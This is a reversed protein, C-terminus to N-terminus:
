KTMEEYTEALLRIGETLQEDTPTSFNVRFSQCPESEDTLFATGPVVCVKHETAKKVFELMDVGDPLTCWAFLGGEFHSWTIGLPKFYREMAELLISSKRRYIARLNELHAEYDYETMIRHCVIQAWMNSHVDEGQKCVVMKQLVEKPGIAYGVRMGPSIVKSFSGAYVVVGETDFSKISPVDEGVFRLDGYPNDEIVPIGSEKLIAAARDRVAQTYTLGTPNQFNPIVYIFKPDHEKLTKELEDCDIGDENLNVSLVKPYYLHFTQLAALYSPKEVVVEDGPDILCASVMDLAQQSGNTIIINEPAYDLGQKAYRESIFKRLPMYGESNSYQLARVGDRELVKTVAAEMEKVPFSAPNPLGGAFSIISPDGAAALIRATFDGQFDPKTMRESIRLKM